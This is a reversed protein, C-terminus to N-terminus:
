LGGGLMGAGYLYPMVKARCFKHYEKDSSIAQKVSTVDNTYSISVGLSSMSSVTANGQNNFASQEIADIAYIADALVCIAKKINDTIIVSALRGFSLLNLECEAKDEYKNWITDTVFAATGGGNSTYFTYDVIPM